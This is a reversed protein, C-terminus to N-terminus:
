AGIAGASWATQGRRFGLGAAAIFVLIFGWYRGTLPRVLTLISAVIFPFAVIAGGKLALSFTAGMMGTPSTYVPLGGFPSLAGDAPALLFTFIAKRYFWTVLLSAIFVPTVIIVRRIIRSRLQRLSELVRELRAELRELM